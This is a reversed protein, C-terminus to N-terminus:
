IMGDNKMVNRVAAAIRSRPVSPTGVPRGIRIDKYPSAKGSKVIANAAKKKSEASDPSMSDGNVSMHKDVM